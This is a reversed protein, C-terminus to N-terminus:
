HSILTLRGSQKKPPLRFAQSSMILIIKDTCQSRSDKASSRSSIARQYIKHNVVSPCQCVAFTESVYVSLTQHFTPAPIKNEYFLCLFLLLFFSCCLRSLICFTFLIYFLIMNLLPLILQDTADLEKHGWPSYGALSRQAHFEGPWFVLLPYGYGEGPSRGLGPIM